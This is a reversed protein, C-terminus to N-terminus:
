FSVNENQKCQFPKKKLHNGPITEDSSIISIIRHSFDVWKGLIVMVVHYELPLQIQIITYLFFFFPLFGHLKLVAFRYHLCHHSNGNGPECTTSTLQYVRQQLRKDVYEEERKCSHSPSECWMGTQNQPHFWWSPAQPPVNEVTCLPSQKEGNSVLYSM